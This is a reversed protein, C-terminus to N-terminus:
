EGLGFDSRTAPAPFALAPFWAPFTPWLELTESYDAQAQPAEILRSSLFYDLTPLGSSGPNLWSTCQVPAVRFLALLYQRFDRSPETFFAVDLQLERVQELATYVNDSILHHQLSPTEAPTLPAHWQSGWSFVHVQFTDSSLQGALSVALWCALVMGGADL